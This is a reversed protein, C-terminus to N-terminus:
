LMQGRGSVGCESVPSLCSEQSTQRQVQNVEGTSVVQEKEKMDLTIDGYKVGGISCKLFTMVNQTLTGTQVFFLTTCMFHRLIRMM